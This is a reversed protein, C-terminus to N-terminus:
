PTVQNSRVFMLSCIAHALHSAGSDPDTDEGAMFAFVHRLAAGTYRRELDDLKRWNDAAYKNAGHALVQGVELMVRPCLLEVRPKGADHKIGDLEEAYTEAELKIGATDPWLEALTKEQVWPINSESM